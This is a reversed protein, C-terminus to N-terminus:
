KFQEAKGVAAAEEALRKAIQRWGLQEKEHKASKYIDNRNTM